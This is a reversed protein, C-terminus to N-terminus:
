EKERMGFVKEKPEKRRLSYEKETSNVKRGNGKTHDEMPTLIFEMVMSKIM